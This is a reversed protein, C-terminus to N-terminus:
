CAIFYLVVLVVIVPTTILSLLWYLGGHCGWFLLEDRLAKRPDIPSPPATM